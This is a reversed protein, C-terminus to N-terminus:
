AHVTEALTRCTGLHARATATWSFRGSVGPPLATARDGPRAPAAGLVLAHVVAGRPNTSHALIAIRLRRTM